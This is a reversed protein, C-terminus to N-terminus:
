CGGPVDCIDGVGNGDLDQQDPNATLPCNDTNNPVGDGDHDPLIRITVLPPVAPSYGDSDIVSATLTHQGPGLVVPASAGNAVLGELSSTWTIASALDGDEADSATGTLTLSAGEIFETGPLPSLVQVTPRNVIRVTVSETASFGVADYATAQLLHVGSSLNAPSTVAGDLSSFWALSAGIDGDQPDTATASLTVPGDDIAFVSSAAPSTITISPLEGPGALATTLLGLDLRPFSLGNRSDSVTAAETTMLELIGAPGLAPQAAHVLAAAGAVHPAAMSTGSKYAYGGGPVAARIGQGPALIDIFAAANSWSSVVDNQENVSGVAVASPSCAPSGVAGTYGNNGTSAVPLVGANRLDDFYATYPSRTCPSSYEGGSLSMNVSAIDYVSTLSEVYDLAALLDSDYALLCPARGAGCEAEGSFFSFAQIAIISADPAVGPRGAEAGAAIAAVHTGHDCYSACPAAAGNGIQTDRGNPCLSSSNYRGSNTSFCGEAVVRGGFVPHSADVGTDIIAVTVGNGTLGFNHALDGGIAPVSDKVSPANLSDEVLLEFLNSDLLRDLQQANVRYVEMPMRRLVRVRDVGLKKLLAGAQASARIRQTSGPRTDSAKYKAIVRVLGRQQAHQQLQEYRPAIRKRNDPDAYLPAAAIAICALGLSIFQKGFTGWFM